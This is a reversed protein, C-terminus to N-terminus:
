KLIAEVDVLWIRATGDASATIIYQGDPSFTADLIYGSHQSFTVLEQGQRNWLKATRDLGATLIYQGDPSFAVTTIDDSHGVPITLQPIQNFAAKGMLLLSITLILRLIQQHVNPFIQTNWLYM